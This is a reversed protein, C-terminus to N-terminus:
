HHQFSRPCHHYPAGNQSSKTFPVVNAMVNDSTDACTVDFAFSKSPRVVQPGVAKKGADRARFMLLPKHRICHLTAAKWAQIRQFHQLSTGQIATSLLM